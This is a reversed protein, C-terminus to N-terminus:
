NLCFFFVECFMYSTAVAECSIADSNFINRAFHKHKQSHYHCLCCLVAADSVISAVTTISLGVRGDSRVALMLSFTCSAHGLAESFPYLDCCALSLSLLLLIIFPHHCCSVLGGRWTLSTYSPRICVCHGSTVGGRGGERGREGRGREDRVGEVENGM